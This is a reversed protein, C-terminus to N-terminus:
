HCTSIVPLDVQVWMLAKQRGVLSTLEWRWEPSLDVSFAGLHSSALLEIMFAM